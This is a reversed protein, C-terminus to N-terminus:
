SYPDLSMLFELLGPMAVVPVEAVQLVVLEVTAMEVESDAVIAELAQKMYNGAGMPIM